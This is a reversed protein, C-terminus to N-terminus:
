NFNMAPVRNQFHEFNNFVSKPYLFVFFFFHYSKVDLMKTGDSEVIFTIANLYPDIKRDFVEPQLRRIAIGLAHFQALSQWNFHQNILWNIIRHSM